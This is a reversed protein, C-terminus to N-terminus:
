TYPSQLEIDYLLPKINLLIKVPFQSSGDDLIKYLGFDDLAAIMETVIVVLEAAKSKKMKDLASIVESKIIELGELNKRRQLNRENMLLYNQRIRESKSKKKEIILIGEKCKICGKASCM